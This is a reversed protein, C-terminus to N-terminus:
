YPEFDVCISFSLISVWRGTSLLTLRRIIRECLARDKKLHRRFWKHAQETIDVCWTSMGDFEMLDIGIEVQSLLEESDCNSLAQEVQDQTLVNKPRMIKTTSVEIIDEDDCKKEEDFVGESDSSDISAAATINLDDLM